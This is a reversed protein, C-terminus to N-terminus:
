ENDGSALSDDKFKLKLSPSPDFYVDDGDEDTSQIGVTFWGAVNLEVDGRKKNQKELALVCLICDHVTCFIPFVIEHTGTKYDLIKSIDEKSKSAIEKIVDAQEKINTANWNTLLEVTPIDDDPLEEVADEENYSSLQASTKSILNKMYIMFNGVKEDEEDSTTTYGILLKDAINLSFNEYEKEQERIVQTINDFIVCYMAIIAKPDDISFSFYDYLKKAALSGAAVLETENEKINEEWWLEVKTEAM